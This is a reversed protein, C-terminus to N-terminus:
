ECRLAVLPDVKMARRAPLWCALLAIIGLLLSVSSLTLLDTPSVEYLLKSMLRTLAWVGALGAALGALTLILGQGLVLRLVDNTQAGLAIRIGIERTHQSVQYSMVGYIGVAALLLALAAYCALLLMNFREDAISSAFVQEMTRINAVPQDRDVSHIAERVAAALTLPDVSTRIALDCPPYFMVQKYTRYLQPRAAAQLEAQKVNKVVGIVMLTPATENYPYMRIRKGVADQSPWLLRAMAENIVAVAETEATDQSTFVRGAVLPIGMTNFYDPSITSPLAGVSKWGTQTEASFLYHISTDTLPLRTVTGASVVGPLARIRELLQDYFAALATHSHYRALTPDIEMTLLHDAKFGADVQRLRLFSNIMLGAGAILVVALAIEVVVLLSRMGSRAQVAGRGGEKLAENLNLRTTQFAPFLGFLIGTTITACLTFAMVRLDIRVDRVVALSDPLVASLMSLGWMALLLGSAGGLLGLLMSETLLQRVIRWRGAGLALRVAIESQRASARFLLLNAVNMCAVLLVFGAAAFLVLLALRIDGVIQDRLSVIRVGVTKNTQPYQQELRTALASMESQAQSQTVGPKLRAIVSLYHSSLRTNITESNLALPIWVAQELDPFHFTPPMVGIITHEQGNLRVRNGIAEVSSAFRRQWLGYSIIVVPDAGPRDDAPSFSRGHIPQAGLLPFLNATVNLGKLKEPEGNGSLNFTQGAWAAMDTFVQNQERWDAFNAPMSPNELSGPFSEWVMMLQEPAAYPLPRLLVTNIVSFIATNAGIGLALTIVAVVTFGPKKLLMRLAYRIDQLLNQM